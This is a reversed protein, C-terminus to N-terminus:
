LSPRDEGLKRWQRSYYLLPSSPEAAAEAAEVEGVFITHDGGDYAHVLRCDLWALVGPLIPSGTVATRCDIGAFRDELEPLMGAFRMGWELQDEALINVAFVRSRQLLEHTYLRKSVCILIRPPELSVSTLSSATIGVRQGGDMSTVVTVGSAWQALANKFLQSEVAM